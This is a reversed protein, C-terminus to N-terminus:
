EIGAGNPVDGDVTILSVIDRAEDVAALVMGQSEVGRLRAPKLNVLVIVKRGVLEEPRYYGKLGAVLQREETGVDVRLILLKDANPHDEAQKVEGVRIDMKKWEPYDIQEAMVAGKKKPSHFCENLPRGKDKFAFLRHLVEEEPRDRRHEGTYWLVGCPPLLKPPRAINRDRILAPRTKFQFSSYRFRPGAGSSLYPLDRRQFGKIRRPIPALREPLGFPTSCHSHLSHNKIIVTSKYM